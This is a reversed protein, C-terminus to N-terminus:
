DPRLHLHRRRSRPPSLLPGSPADALAGRRPDPWAALLGARAPDLPVRDGATAPAPARASPGGRVRGVQGQGGPAGLQERNTVTDASDPSEKLAPTPASPGILRQLPAHPQRGLR